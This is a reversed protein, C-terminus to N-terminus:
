LSAGFDALIKYVGALSLSSTMLFMRRTGVVPKRGLVAVFASAVFRGNDNQAPCLSAGAIVGAALRLCWLGYSRAPM